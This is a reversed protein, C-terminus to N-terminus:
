AKKRAFTMWTARVVFVFIVLGGIGFVTDPLIRLYNFLKIV